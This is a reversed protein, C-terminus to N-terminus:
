PFDLYVFCNIYYYGLKNEDVLFIKFKQHVRFHTKLIRRLEFGFFASYLHSIAYKFIAFSHLLISRLAKATFSRQKKM